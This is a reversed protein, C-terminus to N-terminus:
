EEFLKNVADPIQSFRTVQPTYTDNQEGNRNFLLTKFGLESPPILNKVRDDIFVCDSYDRGACKVKEFIRKDPKRLKVDGSIIVTKFFGNLLFKARLYASWASVDNSIIGLEYSKGLSILAEVCEEDLTIYDNLYELEIEPYYAGLGVSKWFDMATIEGLSARMYAACIEAPTIKKNKGTVFPVLLDNTDDGVTFIVGMADFFIYKKM